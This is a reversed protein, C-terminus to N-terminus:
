LKMVYSKAQDILRRVNAELEDDPIDNPHVCDDRIGALYIMQKLVTDDLKSPRETHVSHALSSIGRTKYEVDNIECLTKLYRELAVGAVAGAARYRKNKFLLESEEIESNAIDSALIRRLSKEKIEAVLQVSLLIGLQNLFDNSWSNIYESKDHIGWGSELKLGHIIRTYFEEFEAIREPMYDNVLHRSSSYWKQYDRFLTEQLIKLEGSPTTYKGGFADDYSRPNFPVNKLLHLGNRKIDEALLELDEIQRGLIDLM